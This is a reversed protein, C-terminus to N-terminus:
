VRLAFVMLVAILAANFLWYAALIRRHSSLRSLGDTM